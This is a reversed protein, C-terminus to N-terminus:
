VETNFKKKIQIGAKAPIVPTQIGASVGAIISFRETMGDSLYLAYAAIDNRGRKTMGM